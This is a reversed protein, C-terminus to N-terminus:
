FGGAAQKTPAILSLNANYIQNNSKLIFARTSAKYDLALREEFYVADKKAYIIPISAGEALFWDGWEEIQPAMLLQPVGNVACGCGENDYVLKLTHLHNQELQREIEKQAAETVTIEM